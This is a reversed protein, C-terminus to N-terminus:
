AALPVPMSYPQDVELPTVRATAVVPYSSPSTVGAPAFMRLQSLLKPAFAPGLQGNWLRHARDASTGPMRSLRTGASATGEICENRCVAAERASRAPSLRSSTPGARGGRVGARKPDCQLAPATGRTAELHSGGPAGVRWVVPASAHVRVGSGKMVLCPCTLTPIPGVVTDTALVPSERPALPGSACWDPSLVSEVRSGYVDTRGVTNVEDDRHDHDDDNPRHTRIV